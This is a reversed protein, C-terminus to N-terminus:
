DYAAQAYQQALDSKTEKLLNYAIAWAYVLKAGQHLYTPDEIQADQIDILEPAAQPQKDLTPAAFELEADVATKYPEVGAQALRAARILENPTTLYGRALTPRALVDLMALDLTASTSAPAAPPASTAITPPMRTPALPAPASQPLCGALVLGALIVGIYRVWLRILMLM